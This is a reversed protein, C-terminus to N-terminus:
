KSSPACIARSASSGGPQMTMGGVEPLMPITDSFLLLLMGIEDDPGGDFELRDGRLLLVPPPPVIPSKSPPGWGTEFGDAARAATATAAAAWWAEIASPLDVEEVLMSMGSWEGLYM